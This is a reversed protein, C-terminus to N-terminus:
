HKWLDVRISGTGATKQTGLITGISSAANLSFQSGIVTAALVVFVSAVMAGSARPQKAIGLIRFVIKKFMTTM